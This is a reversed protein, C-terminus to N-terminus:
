FSDYFNEQNWNEFNLIRAYYTFDTLSGTSSMVFKISLILCHTLLLTLLTHFMHFMGSAAVLTEQCEVKNSDPM